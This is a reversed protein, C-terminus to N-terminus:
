NATLYRSPVALLCTVSAIAQEGSAQLVLMSWRLPTRNLREYNELEFRSIPTECSEGLEGFRAHVGSALADFVATQAREGAPSTNQPDAIRAYMKWHPRGIVSSRRKLRQMRSTVLDTRPGIRLWGARCATPVPLAATVPGDCVASSGPYERNKEVGFVRFLRLFLLRREPVSASAATTTRRHGSKAWLWERVSAPGPHTSGTLAENSGRQRPAARDLAGDMAPAGRSGPTIIHFHHPDRSVPATASLSVTPM